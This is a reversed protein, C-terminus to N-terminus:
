GVKILTVNQSGGGGNLFRINTGDACFMGGVAVAFVNQWGNTDQIQLQTNAGVAYAYYVGAAPVYNGGAAIATTVQNGMISGSTGTAIGTPVFDLSM